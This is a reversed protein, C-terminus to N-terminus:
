RSDSIPSFGLETACYQCMRYRSYDGRAFEAMREGFYESNYADIPLVDQVRPLDARSEHSWDQCCLLYSGDHLINLNVLPQTCHAELRFRSAQERLNDHHLGKILGGRSNAWFEVNVKVDPFLRLLSDVDTERMVPCNIEITMHDRAREIFRRTNTVTLSLPLGTMEEYQEPDGSNINVHVQKPPSALLADVRADDLLVGNTSLMVFAKTRENVDRIKDFLSPELLPEFHLYLGVQGTFRSRALDTVILDWIVHPM